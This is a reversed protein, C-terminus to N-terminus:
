LPSKEPTRWSVLQPPAVRPGFVAEWASMVKIILDERNKRAVFAMGFPRGNFQAYGLPLTGVPCGAMAYVTATRGTPAGM